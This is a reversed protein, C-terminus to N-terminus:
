ESQTIRVVRTQAADRHERIPINARVRDVDSIDLDAIAIGKGKGVRGLVGGWPDVIMTEGWTRLKKSHWGGQNAAVLYCQTEVARTRVLLDWHDRGTAETFASPVFIMKAGLNVLDIFLEPFRLDYCIALGVKGWPSDFVVPRNGHLYDDSERYIRGTEGVTADFLYIKSYEVHISGHFDFVVTTARPKAINREKSVKEGLDIQLPLTGAVIWLKLSKSLSSIADLTDQQRQLSFNQSKGYALFNEPWIVIDAGQKRASVTLERIISWNDEFSPTSVMQIAAVRPCDKKSYLM